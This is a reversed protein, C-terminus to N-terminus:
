LIILEAGRGALRPKWEEFLDTLAAIYRDRLEAVAEPSPNTNAPGVDIPEGVVVTLPRRHPLLGYNYTFVGRGHFLPLSFSLKSQLFKQLSRLSGNTQTDIADFIDNEGFGFSPVLRSGTTLAIRFFGTRRRLTLVYQGAVADLAESAGGVVIVVANGPKLAARISRESAAMTGMGLLFERLFPIRMTFVLTCLKPTLGPFIQSWGCAETGFALQAGTSLIGHPHYGILYTHKPDLTMCPKAKILSVPFYAAYNQWLWNNRLWSM